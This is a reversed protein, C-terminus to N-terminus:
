QKYVGENFVKIKKTINKALFSFRQKSIKLQNLIQKKEKGSNLLALFKFEVDSLVKKYCLIKRPENEIIVEVPDGSASSLKM